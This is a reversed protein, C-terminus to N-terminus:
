EAEDAAERIAKAIVAAEDAKNIFIAYATTGRQVADAEKLWRECEADAIRAAEEFAARRADPSPHAYLPRVEVYPSPQGGTPHHRQCQWDEAPPYRFDWAVPVAEQPELAASLAARMSARAEQDIDVSCGLLRGDYGDGFYAKLAREVQEETIM